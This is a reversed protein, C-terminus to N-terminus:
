NKLKKKLVEVTRNLEENSSIEKSIKEYSYSITTHDKGGVLVGIEKLTLDLLLRLLYIAIQRPFVVEKTQKKSTIDQAHIGYQDAVAAIVQEPTLRNEDDPNIIDKLVNKAIDLTLNTNPHFQTYYHIKNLAGELDRINTKIHTAIYQLIEHDITYGEISEKKELIAMRTEYDPSSIEVTLGSAFRSRIREELDDFMRPPKDSSIVIQKKNDYLYNFTHFFENLSNEKDFIFQIDDILLADVNRYREKFYNLAERDKNRQSMARILEDTFKESTVYIVNKTPDNNLIYGAIANMLHTKGLGPGGYIFLPNFEMGPNEAVSLAAAHAFQNNTGKVFTDFTYKPNLKMSPYVSGNSKDKEKEKNSFLVSDNSAPEILFKIEMHEEYLEELVVQFCVAYKKSLHMTIFDSSNSDNSDNPFSVFLVSDKLNYPRLPQIWTSYALDILDFEDRVKTQISPWNEKIAALTVRPM